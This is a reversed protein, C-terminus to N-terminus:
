GHSDVANNIVVPDPKFSDRIVVVCLMMHSEEVLWVLERCM